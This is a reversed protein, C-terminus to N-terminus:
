GQVMVGCRRQGVVRGADVVEGVWLGSVFRNHAGGDSVSFEGCENDFSEISGGDM